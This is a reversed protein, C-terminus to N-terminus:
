PRHEGRGLFARNRGQGAHPATNASAKPVKPNTVASNKGAAHQRRERMIETDGITRSSLRQRRGRDGPRDRRRRHGNNCLTTHAIVSSCIRDLTRDSTAHDSGNEQRCGDREAYRQPAEPRNRCRQRRAALRHSADAM